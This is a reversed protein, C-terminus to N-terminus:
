LGLFGFILTLGFIRVRCLSVVHASIDCVNPERNRAFLHSHAKKDIGERKAVILKPNIEIRIHPSPTATRGSFCKPFFHSSFTTQQKAKKRKPITFANKTHNRTIQGAYADGVLESRRHNLNITPVFRLSGFRHSSAFLTEVSTRNCVTRYLCRVVRSSFFLSSHFYSIHRLSYAAPIHGFADHSKFTIPSPLHM